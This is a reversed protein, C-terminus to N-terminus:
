KYLQALAKIGREPTPFVPVGMAHIKEREAREIEAGGLFIVLDGRAPDVATHAEDIPDGFILGLVDFHEAAKEAVEAYIKATADGTLDFPNGVVFHEPLEKRLDAYLEEPLHPVELGCEVAADTAIIAAGGSSTLFLIRRGKPAKMYALAKSYDYLEELTDARYIGYQRFVAEYIEDRGALSKTHSEAAVRGRETRGAKLIVLPKECAEVAAIFKRADKVGELYIAIARTNEDQAFYAILDSEDVDCRNGMSVFCSVGLGDLQAWDMLAAGVTGSQSVLAIPGRNTLLPWSACLGHYPHNIGQCNPGVVAVGGQQAAEVLEAELAEGEPSSEKFGGTIVIAAGVGREGCESIVGPVFRAPVIVVALDVPDALASISASVPRGLIEEAKPNVPHVPGAFGADIINKMIEHGLKSPDTSAGVVAVSEPHFLKRMQEPTKLATEAVIRGRLTPRSSNHPDFFSSPRWWEVRIALWPLPFLSPPYCCRDRVAGAWHLDLM